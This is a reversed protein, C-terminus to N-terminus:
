ELLAVSKVQLWLAMGPALQLRAASRRTLRVTIFAAGVQVLALALAPHRPDDICRRLTGRLTNAISSAGPAETALSVDRALVRVRQASGLPRGDDRAWLAGGDFDLRVLHWRADREGVVCPLVVGADEEQSLPGELRALLPLAAGAEVVRGGEMLVLHEALRAVEALSHTVYVIPLALTRQLADLYPLVEARRGADLSALPEDLLLLRPAMALARAIAVRQREGGSLSDPRRELLAGIGLLEIAADLAPVPEGQPIRARGYELNARVSLHPFLAADQFVVGVGRRQPPLWLATDQWPRGDVVVRGRAGSELGALCRLVTTKGCGSPGFLMSVGRGPLSLAVDLTFGSPRRLELAAEITM